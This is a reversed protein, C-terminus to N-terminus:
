NTSNWPGSVVLPATYETQKLQETFNLKRDPDYKYYISDGYDFHPRVHPRSM